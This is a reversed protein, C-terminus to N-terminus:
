KKDIFTVLSGPFFITKSRDLYNEEKALAATQYEESTFVEMIKEYSDAEFLALGHHTPLSFGLAAAGQEFM